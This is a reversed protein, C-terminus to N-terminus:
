PRGARAIIEGVLHDLTLFRVLQGDYQRNIAPQADTTAVFLEAKPYARAFVLINAPDFDHASWKCEIAVLKGGRSQWVLDIEHGQKDRWYRLNTAQLQATLENLVYHEWLRGLDDRRLSTWGRYVCVFGTDFGYVKPASIIENAIRAIM